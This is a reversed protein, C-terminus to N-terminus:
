EEAIEIHQPKAKPLVVRLMGQQYVAEVQEPVVDYPLEFEAAFEGYHIEMQHFTQRESNDTRSGRIMLNRGDLTITFDEDRMAAIEVRVVLDDETEYVDTPPRWSHSHVLWGAGRPDMYFHPSDQLNSRGGKVTGPRLYITVM